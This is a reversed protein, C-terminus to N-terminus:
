GDRGRGGHLHLYLLAERHVLHPRVERHLAPLAHFPVAPWAHHEAHYPMNWLCWRAWAPVQLSRTRQLITGGPALGRHEATTYWSLFMHGVLLGYYVRWLEPLVWVATAILGAHILVLGRAEWAIRRRREPRVFPLVKGWGLAGPALAAFVAWASRAFVLPLGTMNIIWMIGRPWALMFRLGALEPDRDLEHTHRHHEFHFARMLAPTMPQALAAIWGAVESWIPRAFATRHCAEHLMGFLAFQALGNLAVLGWMWAPEPALVVAVSTGLYLVTQAALRRLGPGDSRTQLERLREPAVLEHEIIVTDLM